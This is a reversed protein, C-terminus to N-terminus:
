HRRSLVFLLGIGAVFVGIAVAAVIAIFSLSGSRSSSRAPVVPAQPAASPQIPMIAHPQSIRNPPGLSPSSAPAVPTHHPTQPASSPAVPPGRSILEQVQRPDMPMTRDFKRKPEQKPDTASRVTEKHTGSQRLPDPLKPMMETKEVYEGTAMLAVAEALAKRLEIATPFREEVPKRLCRMIVSSLVAPVDKRYEGIPKPAQTLIAAMLPAEGQQPFPPFGTILKYLCAGLSWVDSRPEVAASNRIQEPAMYHLTGVVDGLRTITELKPVAGGKITRAIGFDLVRIFPKGKVKTLFLNHPKLDRHVIGAAHAEAVAECAQDIHGCAEILPLPGREALERNLDRGELLEMVMFPLGSPLAGVDFVRVTHKSALSAMARAERAFRERAELDNALAPELVKIAVENGLTLHRAGLVHAMGGSGVFRDIRYRDMVVDGMAPVAAVGLHRTPPPEGPDGM